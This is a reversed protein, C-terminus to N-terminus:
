QEVRHMDGTAGGDTHRRNSWGRHTEQQEMRHM